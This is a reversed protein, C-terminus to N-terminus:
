KLRIVTSMTAKGDLLDGLNNEVTVTKRDAGIVAADNGKVKKVNSPFTYRLTYKADKFMMKAMEASQKTEDDDDDDDKAEMKMDMTRSFKKGTYTISNDKETENSEDGGMGMAAGMGLDNGRVIFAANLAEISEFEYSYGIVKRERSNLNVVNKIGPIKKLNEMAEMDDFLEDMSDSTKGSEGGISDMASGFGEMLAMMKSIDMEMKAKGSGDANFEYEEVIDFCSSFGLAMLLIALGFYTKLSNSM